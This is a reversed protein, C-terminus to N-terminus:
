GQRDQEIMEELLRAAHEVFRVCPRVKYYEETRPLPDKQLKGPLSSLLERCILTGQEQEFSEALARIRAYHATKAAQDGAVGYGSLLGLAMFMGTVAGCTSRLGGMGGGFGSAMKMLTERPLGIEEEFAGVVSQACNYGATFLERAKKAHDM